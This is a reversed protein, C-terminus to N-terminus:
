GQLLRAAYTPNTYDRWAAILGDRVEYVALNMIPAVPGGALGLHHIQEALVVDENVAQHATEFRVIEFRSFVGDWVRLLAERGHIEDDGYNRFVVDPHFFRELRRVDKHEFSDVLERVLKDNDVSMAAGKQTVAGPLGVAMASLMGPTM